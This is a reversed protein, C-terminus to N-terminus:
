FRLFASPDLRETRGLERRLLQLRLEEPKLSLARQLEARALQTDALAGLQVANMYHVWLLQRATEPERSQEGLWREVYAECRDLAARAGAQSSAPEVQSYLCAPTLMPYLKPAVRTDLEVFVPRARAVAELLPAAALQDGADVYAGVLATLEPHQELLARQTGPYGLFPLPVHVVDPRAGEVADLEFSRFVTQPASEVVVARAPLQRLRPEDLVDTADFSALSSRAWSGPVLALASMPLLWVIQPPVPSIPHPGSRLRWAATGVGCAALTGLALYSPALYGLVDPNSLVPGMWARVLADILLVLVSVSVAARSVSLRLGLYL